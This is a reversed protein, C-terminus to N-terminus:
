RKLLCCAWNTRLNPPFGSQRPRAVGHRVSSRATGTTLVSTSSTLGRMMEPAQFVRRLEPTTIASPRRSRGTRRLFGPPPKSRWPWPRCTANRRMRKIPAYHAYMCHPGADAVARWIMKSVEPDKLALLGALGDITFDSNTQTSTTRTGGFGSNLSRWKPYNYPIRTQKVCLADEVGVAKLLALFDQRKLKAYGSWLPQRDRGSVRRSYIRALGTQVFPIDLYVTDAQHFGETNEVRLFAVGNLLTCDRSESFWRLFRRVHQIHNDTTPTRTSEAYNMRIIAALYDREGIEKAGAKRLFQEVDRGRTRGTRTLASRVLVLGHAAAEEDLAADAPSILADGPRARTGNELRVFALHSFSPSRKQVRMATDVLLYLRQVQDDPLADFWAQAKKRSTNEQRVLGPCFGASVGRSVGCIGM